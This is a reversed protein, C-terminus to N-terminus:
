EDICLGWYQAFDEVALEAVEPELHRTDGGLVKELMERIEEVTTLYGGKM